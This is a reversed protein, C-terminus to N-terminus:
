VALDIVNAIKLPRGGCRSCGCETAQRTLTCSSLFQRECGCESRSSLRRLMYQHASQSDYCSGLRQHVRYM